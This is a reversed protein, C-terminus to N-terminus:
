YFYAKQKELFGKVYTVKDMSYVRGYIDHLAKHHTKCLTIYDSFYQNGLVLIDLIPLEGHQKTIYDVVSSIPYLHHIELDKDSGCVYCKKDYFYSSKLHYRIRKTLSIM